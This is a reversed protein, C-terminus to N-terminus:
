TEDGEQIVRDVPTHGKDDLYEPQNYDTKAKRVERISFRSTFEKVNSKNKRWDFLQLPYVCRSTVVGGGELVTVTLTEGWSGWSLGMRVAYEDTGNLDYSWGLTEFTSEVSERVTRRDGITEIQEKCSAFPFGFAM